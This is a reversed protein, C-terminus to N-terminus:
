KLLLEKVREEIQGDGLRFSGVTRELGSGEPPPLGVVSAIWQGQGTTEDILEVELNVPPTGAGGKRDRSLRFEPYEDDGPVVVARDVRACKLNHSNVETKVWQRLKKWREANSEAGTM